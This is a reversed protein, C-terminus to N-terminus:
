TSVRELIDVIRKGSRGDGFPNEWGGRRNLMLLGKEVIMNPDTGVLLNAGVDVTEPRETNDRVTICPVGLICAEEQVGGSDTVVLAAKSELLLFTLYDLPEVLTVGSAKLGFAVLNKRSRPHIPYIVQLGAEKSLRRVGELIGEFREKVDVNEARHSTMLIYAGEEIDLNQIYAREEAIKLNQLLADVVTNGVVYIKDEEIGEKLLNGKSVNTPAFLYESLHDAVVRNIEEPMRRDYSRM